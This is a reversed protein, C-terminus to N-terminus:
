NILDIIEYDISVQLLIEKLKFSRVQFNFLAFNLEMNKLNASFQFCWMLRARLLFQVLSLMCGVRSDQVMDSTNKLKKQIKITKYSLTGVSTNPSAADAVKHYARYLWLELLLALVKNEAPTARITATADLLGCLGSYTTPQAATKSRNETGHWGKDYNSYANDKSKTKLPFNRLNNWFTM